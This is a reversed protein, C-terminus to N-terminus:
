DKGSSALLAGALASADSLSLKLFEKLLNTAEAKTSGSVVDLLEDTDAVSSAELVTIIRGRVAASRLRSAIESFRSFPPEEASM